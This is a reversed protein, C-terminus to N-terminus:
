FVGKEMSHGKLPSDDGMFMEQIAKGFRHRILRAASYITDDDRLADERTFVLTDLYKRKRNSNLLGLFENYFSFLDKANQRLPASPTAEIHRVFYTAIRELPTLNLFSELQDVLPLYDACQIKSQSIQPDCWFCALMGSAYLLKRSLGLKISRLAYGSNGRDFQKYAFDVAMTRWYRVFDNLLFLPIWRISGGDIGPKLLNRDESLYRRLISRRVGTFRQTNSGLPYAELLLLIRRTTNSNTDEEGGIYHLMPQSFTLKGFTGEKGPLKLHYKKFFAPEFLAKQVDLFTRQSGSDAIGDALFTWDLDSGSTCEMRALSGHVVVCADSGVASGNDIIQDL